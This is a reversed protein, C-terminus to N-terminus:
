PKRAVGAWMPIPESLATPADPRWLATQTVGPELIEWDGFFATVEEGTRRTQGTVVSANYRRAVEAVKETQIDGAPHSIVLYSGSPV